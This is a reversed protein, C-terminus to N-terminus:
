EAAEKQTSQRLVQVPTRSDAASQFWVSYRNLAELVRKEPVTEPLEFTSFGVRLLFHLQDPLIDGTARLEASFGSRERLLCALTFGRGDKFAPFRIAILSLRDIFPALSEPEVDGEIEVGVSRGGVFLAEGNEILDDLSVFVPTQTSNQISNLDGRVWSDAVPGHHDYLPM